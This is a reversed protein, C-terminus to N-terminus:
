NNEQQEKVKLDKAAELVGIELESDYYPQSELAGPEADGRAEM